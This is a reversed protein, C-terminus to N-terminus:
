FGEKAKSLVVGNRTHVIIRQRGSEWTFTEDRNATSTSGSIGSAGISFGRQEERRGETGMIDQVQTITMGVQIREFSEESIDACGGLALAVGLVLLALLSKWYTTAITM